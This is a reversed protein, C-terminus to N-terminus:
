KDLYNAIAQLYVNANAEDAIFCTQNQYHRDTFWIKYLGNKLDQVEVIDQLREIKNELMTQEKM